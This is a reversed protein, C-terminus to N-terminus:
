GVCRPYLQQTCVWTDRATDEHLAEFRTLRECLARYTLRRREPTTRSNPRWVAYTTSREERVVLVTRKSRKQQYFGCVAGRTDSAGAKPGAAVGMEACAVAERVVSSAGNHAAEGCEKLKRWADRCSLRSDASEVEIHLHMVASGSERDVCIQVESKLEASCNKGSGVETVGALAASDGAAEADALENEHLDMFYSFVRKQWTTSMALMRNFFTEITLTNEIKDHYGMDYDNHHYSHVNPRQAPAKIVDLLLLLCFLEVAPEPPHLWGSAHQTAVQQKKLQEQYAKFAPSAKFSGPDQGQMPPAIPVSSSVPKGVALFSFINNMAVAPLQGYQKDRYPKGDSNSNSFVITSFYEKEKQKFVRLVEAIARKVPLPFMLHTQPTWEMPIAQEGSVGEYAIKIEMLRKAAAARKAETPKLTEHKRHGRQAQMAKLERDAMQRDVFCVIGRAIFKERMEANTASEHLGLKSLFYRKDQESLQGQTGVPNQLTM